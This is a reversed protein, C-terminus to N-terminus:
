KIRISFLRAISTQKVASQFCCILLFPPLHSTDLLCIILLSKKQLIYSLVYLFTLSKGLHEWKALFHKKLSYQNNIIAYCIIGFSLMKFCCANIKKCNRHIFFGPVPWPARLLSCDLNLPALDAELSVCHSQPPNLVEWDSSNLSESEWHNNSKPEGWPRTMHVKRYQDPNGLCVSCM